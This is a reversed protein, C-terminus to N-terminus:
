DRITTEKVRGGVAPCSCATESPLGAKVTAAKIAALDNQLAKLATTQEAMATKVKDVKGEIGSALVIAFIGCLVYDIFDM